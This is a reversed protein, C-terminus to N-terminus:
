VPTVFHKPCHRVTRLRAYRRRTLRGGRPDKAAIIRMALHAIALMAALSPPERAAVVGHGSSSEVIGFGSTVGKKCWTRAYRLGM